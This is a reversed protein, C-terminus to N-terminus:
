PFITVQKAAPDYRYKFRHTAAMVDMVSEVDNSDFSLGGYFIQKKLDEDEFVVSVGMTREIVKAIQGLSEEDFFVKDDIWCNYNEAKINKLTMNRNSKNLRVMQNPKMVVKKATAKDLFEVSGQLLSVHIESDESYNSINFKTGLVRVQTDESSVVLPLEENEAIEFYAEGNLALSRNTVGFQNDYVLKSSANLWVVSGDPLDVKIKSKGPTNVVYALTESPLNDPRNVLFLSVGGALLLLLFCAAYKHVRQLYVTRNTSKTKTKEAAVKAKFAEYAMEKHYRNKAVTGTLQWVRVREKLYRRNEESENMWAKLIRKGELSISGELLSLILDEIRDM